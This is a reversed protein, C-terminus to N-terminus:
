LYSAPVPGVVEMSARGAIAELTAEDATGAAEAASLEEFFSEMAAPAFLNLKRGAGGSRVQFTHPVGKPVYVFTGPPCVEQREEIVMLYEGELVFFAEAADHHIHLPPGFGEPEGQTQLLTFAGGTEAGGALVVAQFNGLDLLRGEGPQIVFPKM